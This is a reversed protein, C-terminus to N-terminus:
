VVDDVAQIFGDAIREVVDKEVNVPLLFRITPNIADNGCPMTLIDYEEYLRKLVADRTEAEAFEIGRMVGLGRVEDIGEQDDLESWERDFIRGMKTAHDLYDNEEIIEITKLAVFCGTPNPGFTSGHKGEAETAFEERILAFGFPHLGGSFAKAAAIMDPEVDWNECAFWEGTRLSAQVEDMVLPIDYDRTIDRLGPLFEDHPVVYGGEGQVPEVIVANINHAGEEIIMNQVMELATDVDGSPGPFPAPFARFLSNYGETQGAKSFTCSLALSTRGHFSGQFAIYSNGGQALESAKLCGREVAESGSNCFYSKIAGRQQNGPFIATLTEALDKLHHHYFDNGALMVPEDDTGYFTELEEMLRPPRHGLPNTGVQSTGDIVWKEEGDQIRVKSGRAGTIMREERTTPLLVDKYPSFDM